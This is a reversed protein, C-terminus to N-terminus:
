VDVKLYKENLKKIEDLFPLAKTESVQGKGYRVFDYTNFFADSATWEMRKLWEKVTEHKQRGKDAEAAQREFDRFAQRIINLDIAAYSIASSDPLTPAPAAAFRDIEVYGAKKTEEKKPKVKRLWLVLMILLFVLMGIFILEFPIDTASPQVTDFPKNVTEELDLKELNQQKQEEPALGNLFDVMKEMGVALPWLAISIIRGFLSAAVYRVEDAIAFVLMTGAASLGLISLLFTVLQLFSLDEKRAQLYRCLMRAAVYFVVLGIAIAYLTESTGGAPNFLSIVLVVSFLLCFKFLFNDDSDFSDENTSFRMHLRYVAVISFLLVVGVSANSVIALSMTALAIVVAVNLSYPVKLFVFFSVIAAAANLSLWLVVLAITTKSDIFVLCLSILFADLMFNFASQLRSIM